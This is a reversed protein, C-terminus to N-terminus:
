FSLASPSCYSFLPEKSMTGMALSPGPSSVLNATPYLLYLREFSIHDSVYILTTCYSENLLILIGCLQPSFDVTCSYTKRLKIYSLVVKLKMVFIASEQM